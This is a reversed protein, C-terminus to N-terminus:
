TNINNLITNGKYYEELRDHLVTNEKKADELMKTLKDNIEILSRSKAEVNIRLENNM